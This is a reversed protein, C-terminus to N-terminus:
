LCPIQGFVFDSYQYPFSAPLETDALTMKLTQSIKPAIYASQVSQAIQVDMMKIANLISQGVQSLKRTEDAETWDYYGDILIKQLLAHRKVYLYQWYLNVEAFPFMEWWLSVLPAYTTDGYKGIERLILEQYASASLAM